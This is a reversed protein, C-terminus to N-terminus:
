NNVKLLRNQQEHVVVKVIPLQFSVIFFFRENMRVPIHLSIKTEDIKEIFTCFKLNLIACNVNEKKYQSEYFENESPLCSGGSQHPLLQFITSNFYTQFYKDKLEFRM